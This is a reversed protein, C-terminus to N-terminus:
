YERHSHANFIYVLTLAISCISGVIIVAIRMFQEPIRAAVATIVAFTIFVYLFRKVLSVKPRDHESSKSSRWWRRSTRSLSPRSIHELPTQSIKSKSAFTKSATNMTPWTAPKPLSMNAQQPSPSELKNSLTPNSSGFLPYQRPKCPESLMETKRIDSFVLTFQVICILKIIFFMLCSLCRCHRGRFVRSSIVCTHPIVVVTGVSIDDTCGSSEHQLVSNYVQFTTCNEVLEEIPPACGTTEASRIM